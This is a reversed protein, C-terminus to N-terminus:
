TFNQSCPLGINPYLCSTLVNSALRAPQPRSQVAAAVQLRCLQTQKPPTRASSPWSPKSRTSAPPPQSPPSSPLPRLIQKHCALYSKPWNITTTATATSPARHSPESSRCFRRALTDRGGDEHTIFRRPSPSGCDHQHDPRRARWRAVLYYRIQRIQQIQQAAPRACTALRLWRAAAALWEAREHRASRGSADAPPLQPPGPRTRKQQACFREPSPPPPPAGRRACLHAELALRGCRLSREAASTLSM